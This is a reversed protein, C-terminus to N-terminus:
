SQILKVQNSSSNTFIDGRLAGKQRPPAHPPHLWVGM